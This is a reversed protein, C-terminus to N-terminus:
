RYESPDLGGGSPTADPTHRQFNHYFGSCDSCHLYSSVVVHEICLSFEQIIIWVFSVPCVRTLLWRPPSSRMKGQSFYSNQNFDEFDNQCPNKNGFPVHIISLLTWKYTRSLSLYPEKLGYGLPYSSYLLCRCIPVCVIHPNLSIYNM